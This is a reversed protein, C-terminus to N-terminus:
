DVLIEDNGVEDVGADRGGSHYFPAFGPSGLRLWREQESEILLTEIVDMLIPVDLPKELVADVASFRAREYQRACGTIIIIPVRSDCRSIIDLIGWGDKPTMNLDLLVLDPPTLIFQRIAESAAKAAVVEYDELELMCALSALVSADDDAILIRNKM